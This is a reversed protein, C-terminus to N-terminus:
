GKSYPNPNRCVLCRLANPLAQLFSNPFSSLALHQCPQLQWCPARLPVGLPTRLGSLLRANGPHRAGLGLWLLNAPPQTRRACFGVDKKLPGGVWIPLLKEEM